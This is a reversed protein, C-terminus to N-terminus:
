ADGSSQPEALLSVGDGLRITGGTIVRAVIGGHGRM